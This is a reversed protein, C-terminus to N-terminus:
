ARIVIQNKAILTRYDDIARGVGLDFEIDKMGWTCYGEMSTLTEGGSLLQGAAFEYGRLHDREQRKQKRDRLWTGIM